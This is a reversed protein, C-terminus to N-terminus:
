VDLFPYAPSKYEPRDKDLENHLRHWASMEREQLLQRELNIKYMCAQYEDIALKINANM